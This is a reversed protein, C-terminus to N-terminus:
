RATKEPALAQFEGLARELYEPGASKPASGLNHRWRRAGPQGLFLGMLPKLLLAIPSGQTREREIYPLYRRVAEEASKSPAPHSFIAEDVELFLEPSEYAARGIMVADLHELQQQVQELSRFGGNIEIFLRPRERKLRQVWDWRLPPIRRNEKPSLGQLWAKRAHITFADCGAEAVRDVFTLLEEFSDHQDVGIRHKVTIPCPVAARMAAVAEAVREPKLMLCAGFGGGQVRDSPCGVNLNIEEFGGWSWALYAAQALENPDSGGLQVAL